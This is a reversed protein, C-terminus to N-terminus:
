LLGETIYKLLSEQVAVHDTENIGLVPRAVTPPYNRGSQATAVKFRLENSSPMVGPANLTAGMATLAVGGKTQTVYNYLDDTRRNIPHAPGYGLSQRILTTPYKLPAWKGTVDDGEEAFRNQVRQRLYPDVTEALFLGLSAPGLLLDLREFQLLADAADTIISVTIM